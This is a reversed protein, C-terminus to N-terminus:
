RLLGLQGQLTSIGAVCILLTYHLGSWFASCSKWFALIPYRCRWLNENPSSLEGAWDTSLGEIAIVVHLYAWKLVISIRKVYVYHSSNLYRVKLSTSCCHRQYLNFAMWSPMKIRQKLAQIKWCQNAAQVNKDLSHDLLYGEHSMVENYLNKGWRKVCGYLGRAIFGDDLELIKNFLYVTEMQSLQYSIPLDNKTSLSFDVLIRPSYIQSILKCVIATYRSLNWGWHGM